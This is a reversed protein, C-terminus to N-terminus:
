LRLPVFTYGRSFLFRPSYYNLSVDQRRTWFFESAVAFGLLKRAATAAGFLLLAAENKEKKPLSNRLLSGAGASNIKNKQSILLLGGLLLM